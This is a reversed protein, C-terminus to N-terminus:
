LEILLGQGDETLDAVPGALGGGQRIQRSEQILLKIAGALRDLAQLRRNREQDLGAKITVSSTM